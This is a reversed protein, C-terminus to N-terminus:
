SLYCLSFALLIQREPMFQLKGHVPALAILHGCFAFKECTLKEQLVCILYSGGELHGLLRSM